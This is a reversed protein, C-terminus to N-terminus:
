FNQLWEKKMLIMIDSLLMHFYYQHVQFHYECKCQFPKSLFQLLYRLWDFKKKIKEKNDSTTKEIDTGKEPTWTIQHINWGKSKVDSSVLEFFDKEHTLLIVQYENFKDILLKAFRARNSRDFSSIVDDLIFFQNEKNFAKVSALFFSLGLCNIHSESLYARPQTKTEDFFRYEITIVVM